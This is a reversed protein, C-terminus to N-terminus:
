RTTGKPQAPWIAFWEGDPLETVEAPHTDANITNPIGDVDELVELETVAQRAPDPIITKM